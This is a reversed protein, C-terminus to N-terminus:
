PIALASYATAARLPLIMTPLEVGSITDTEETFCSTYTCMNDITINCYYLKEKM